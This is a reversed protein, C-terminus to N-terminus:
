VPPVPVLGTRTRTLTFGTRVQEPTKRTEECLPATQGNEVVAEWVEVLPRQLQHTAPKLHTLEKSVIIISAKM